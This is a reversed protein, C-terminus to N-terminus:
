KKEKLLVDYLTNIMFFKYTLYANRAGVGIKFIMIFGSYNIWLKM